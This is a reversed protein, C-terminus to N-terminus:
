LAEDKDSQTKKAFLADYVQPYNKRLWQKDEESPFRNKDKDTLENGSLLTSNLDNANNTRKIDLKKLKDAIEKAESREREEVLPKLAKAVYENSKLIKSSLSSNKLVEGINEWEKDGIVVNGKIAKEVEESLWEYGEKTLDGKMKTFQNYFDIFDKVSYTGEQGETETGESTGEQGETETGESTGGEQFYGYLGLLERIANKAVNEENLAKDRGEQLSLQHFAGTPATLTNQLYGQQANGLNKLAYSLRADRLWKDDDRKESRNREGLSTAREAMSKEASNRRENDQGQLSQIYELFEKRSLGEKAAEVEELTAASTNYADMLQLMTPDDAYAAYRGGEFDSLSPGKKAELSKEGDEGEVEDYYRNKYAELLKNGRIRDQNWDWLQGGYTELDDILADGLGKYAKNYLSNLYNGTARASNAVNGWGDYLAM